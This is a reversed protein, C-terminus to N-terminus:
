SRNCMCLRSQRRHHELLLQNIRRVFRHKEARHDGIRCLLGDLKLFLNLLQRRDRGVADLGDGSKERFVLGSFEARIPWILCSTAGSSNLAGSGCGTFM